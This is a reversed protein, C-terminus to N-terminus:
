EYQDFEKRVATLLNKPSVPKSLFQSILGTEIATIALNQDLGSCLIIPIDPRLENIRDALDLGTIGPMTLDTIVMDYREVDEVFASWAEDAKEYCDIQYGYGSFTRRAINLIATEDDIFLIHEDGELLAKDPQATNTSLQAAHFPLYINFQAGHPQVNVAEIIGHHTKIIGHVVALGMGTGEGIKKTTFFPEFLRPMVDDPIGPGDDTISLKVWPQIQHNTENIQEVQDITVNISGAQKGISQSANTCLNIIIQQLQVEDALVTDQETDFHCQIDITSPLSARLLGMSEKCIHKISTLKTSIPQKRSFTLIQLILDRARTTAKSIEMLAHSTDSNQPEMLALEAYGMIGALINNFDHAIGSAMTGVAELKQHELLAKNQLVRKEEEDKQNQIDEVIVFFSCGSASDLDARINLSAWHQVNNALNIRLEIEFSQWPNKKAQTKIQEWSIQDQLSILDSFYEGVLTYRHNFYDQALRNARIINDGQAVVFYLSPSLDFLLRYHKKSQRLSKLMDQQQDLLTKKLLALHIVAAISDIFLLQDKSPKYKRPVSNLALIMTNKENIPFPHWYISFIELKQLVEEFKDKVIAPHPNDANSHLPKKQTFIFDCINPYPQLSYSKIAPRQNQIDPNLWHSVAKISQHHNDGEYIVVRDLKLAKGAIKAANQLIEIPDQQQLVIKSLRDLAQAHSLQETTKEKSQEFSTLDRIVILVHSVESQNLLFLPAFKIKLYLKGQHKTRIWQKLTNKKGSFADLILRQETQKFDLCFEYDQGKNNKELFYRKRYNANTLLIKFNADIIVMLDSSAECM